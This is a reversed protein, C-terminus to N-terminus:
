FNERPSSKKKVEVSSQSFILNEMDLSQISHPSMWRLMEHAKFGGKSDDNPFLLQNGQSLLLPSRDLDAPSSFFFGSQTRDTGKTESQTHSDALHQEAVVSSSIGRRSM